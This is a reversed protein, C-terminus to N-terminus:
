ALGLGPGACDGPMARRQRKNGRPEDDEEVPDDFRGPTPQKTPWPIAMSRATAGPSPLGAASAPDATPVLPQSNSMETPLSPETTVATPSWEAVLRELPERQGPPPELSLATRLAMLAEDHKGLDHLAIALYQHADVYDPSAAIARNADRVADAPRGLKLLVAARSSLVTHDDFPTRRVLSDFLPLATEHDGAAFAAHAASAARIPDGIGPAALRSAKM